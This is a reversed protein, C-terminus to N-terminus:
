VTPRNQLPSTCYVFNTASKFVCSIAFYWLWEKLGEREANCNFHSARESGEVIRLICILWPMTCPVFCAFVAAFVSTPM